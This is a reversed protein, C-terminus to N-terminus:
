ATKSFLRGIFYGLAVLGIAPSVGLFIVGLPGMLGGMIMGFLALPVGLICGVIAGRFAGQSQSKQLFYILGLGVIVGALYFFFYDLASATANFASFRLFFILTELIPFIAGIILAWLFSPKGNM